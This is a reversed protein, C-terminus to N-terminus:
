QTSRPENNVQPMSGWVCMREFKQHYKIILLDDWMKELILRAKPLPLGRETAVEGTTRSGLAKKMEDTLQDTQDARDLYKLIAKKYDFPEEQNSSM